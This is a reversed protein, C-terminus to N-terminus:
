MLSKEEGIGIENSCTQEEYEEYDNLLSGFTIM